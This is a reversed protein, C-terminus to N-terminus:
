RYRLPSKGTRKPSWFKHAIAIDCVRVPWDQELLRAAMAGGMNGVGVVGIAPKM